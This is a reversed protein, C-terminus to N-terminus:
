RALAHSAFLVRLAAPPPGPGALEGLVWDGGGGAAGAGGGGGAAAGGGSSSDGGGAWSLLRAELGEVLAGVFGPAAADGEVAAAAVPQAARAARDSRPPPGAELSGSESSSGGGDWDEDWVAARRGAGAGGDLGSVARHAEIQPWADDEGSSARPPGM